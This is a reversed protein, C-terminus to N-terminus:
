RRYSRSSRRKPKRMAVAAVLAIGALATVGVIVIPVVNQPDDKDKTQKKTQKPPQDPQTPQGDDGDDDKPVCKLGEPTFVIEGDTCLQEEIWMREDIQDGRDGEIDEIQQQVEQLDRDRQDPPVEPYVNSELNDQEEDLQLLENASECDAVRSYYLQQRYYECEEPSLDDSCVEPGSPEIAGCDRLTAGLGAMVRLNDQIRRTM